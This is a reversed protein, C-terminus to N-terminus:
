FPQFTLTISRAPSFSCCCSGPSFSGEEPLLPSQKMWMYPPLPVDHFLAQDVLPGAKRTSLPSWTTFYIFISCHSHQSPHSLSYLTNVPTLTCGIAVCSPALMLICDLFGWFMLIICKYSMCFVVVLLLLSHIFKSHM